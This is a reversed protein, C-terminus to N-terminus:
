RLPIMWDTMKKLLMLNGNTDRLVLRGDKHAFEFQRTIGQSKEHIGLWKDKIRILGGRFQNPAQRYYMKFQGQKVEMIMGNNTQWKGEIWHPKFQGSSSGMALGPPAYGPLFPIPTSNGLGIGPLGGGMMQQMALAGTLSQAASQTASQTPSQWGNGPMSFNSFGPYAFNGYGFSNLGNFSNFSPYPQSYYDDKDDIFGMIEMMTLMMEIFLNGRINNAAQIPSITILMALLIAIIKFHM